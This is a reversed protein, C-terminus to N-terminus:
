RGPGRKPGVDTAQFIVQVQMAPHQELAAPQPTVPDVAGNQPAPSSYQLGPDLDGPEGAQAVPGPDGGPGPEVVRHDHVPGSIPGSATMSRPAIPGSTSNLPRNCPWATAAAQEPQGIITIMCVMFRTSGNLLAGSGVLGKRSTLYKLM